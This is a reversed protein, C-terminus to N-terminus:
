NETRKGRQSVTSKRMSSGSGPLRHFASGILIPDSDSNNVKVYPVLDDNSNTDSMHVPEKM